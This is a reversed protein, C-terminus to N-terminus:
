GYPFHPVLIGLLDHVARPENAPPVAVSGDLGELARDVMGCNRELATKIVGTAAM